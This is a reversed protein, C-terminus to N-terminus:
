KVLYDKWREAKCSDQSMWIILYLREKELLRWVEIDPPVYLLMWRVLRWQKWIRNTWTLIFLKERKLRMSGPSEVVKLVNPDNIRVTFSQKRFVHMEPCIVSFSDMLYLLDDCCVVVPNHPILNIFPGQICVQIVEYLHLESSGLFLPYKEKSDHQM